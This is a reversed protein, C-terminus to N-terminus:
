GVLKEGTGDDHWSGWWTLFFGWVWGSGWAYARPNFVWCGGMGGRVCLLILTWQHGNTALFEGGVRSRVTGALNGIKVCFAAIEGVESGRKRSKEAIKALVGTNKRRKERLEPLRARVRGFLDGGGM